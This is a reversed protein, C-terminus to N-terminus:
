LERYLSLARFIELLLSCGQSAKKLQLFFLVLRLDDDSLTRLVDESGTNPFNQIFQHFAESARLDAELAPRPLTRYRALSDRYPPLLPDALSAVGGQGRMRMGTLFIFALNGSRFSSCDKGQPILKRDTSRYIEKNRVDRLYLRPNGSRRFAYFGLRNEFIYHKQEDETMEEAPLPKRNAEAVADTSRRAGGVPEPADPDDVWSLDPRLLRPREGIAHRGRVLIDEAAQAPNWWRPLLLLPLDIRDPDLGRMAHLILFAIRLRAPLEVVTDPVIRERGWEQHCTRLLPVLVTSWLRELYDGLYPRHFTLLHRLRETLLTAATEGAGPDETAADILAKAIAVPADFLLSEARDTSLLSTPALTEGMVTRELDHPHQSEYVLGLNDDMIGSLGQPYGCTFFYPHSYQLVLPELFLSYLITRDVIWGALFSLVEIRSPRFVGAAPNERHCRLAYAYVEEWSAHTQRRFFRRFIADLHASLHEDYWLRANGVDMELRLAEVARRRPRPLDSWPWCRYSCSQYDCERSGDIALRVRDHHYAHTFVCDWSAQALFRYVLGMNRDKIECRLYKQFDVSYTLAESPDIEDGLSPMATHLYIRVEPAVMGTHSRARLGRAIAQAIDSFNWAPTLIHIQQIHFLSIGEKTKNTILILRCFRGDRNEPRNFYRILEQVDRDPTRVADNIFIFRNKPLDSQLSPTVRTIMEFQFMDRLILALLRIGSGSVLSSYAYAKKLLNEPRLFVELFGAYVSSFQRLFDIKIQPNSATLVSRFNLDPIANWRDMRWRMVFAAAGTEGAPRPRSEAQCFRSFGTEGWSGDPFVFLSAQATNTYLTTASAGAERTRVDKQLADLYYHNQFEAMRDVFLPISGMPQIVEGEYQIAVDTLAQKLFSLRGQLAAALEDVADPRWRYVPLEISPFGRLGEEEEEAKEEPPEAAQESAIGIPSSDSAGAVRIRRDVVLYRDVFARGTPLQRNLPLMLNWLQAIEEPQDHMPTGTLLLLKRVPIAHFLRHLASYVMEGQTGADHYGLHHCEDLVILSRDYRDRIIQPIREVDKALQYYTSFEIRLRQFVTAWRAERKEPDRIGDVLEEWLRQCQPSRLRIENKFNNLITQNNAIFLTRGSRFPSGEQRLAEMVAVAVSSKGTGPEHCLLLSDYVSHFQLFRAIRIQNEFFGSVGSATDWLEKKLSLASSFDIPDLLVPPYAPLLENWLTLSPTEVTLRDELEEADEEMVVLPSGFAAALRSSFPSSMRDLLYIRYIRCSLNSFLFVKIKISWEVSFYM